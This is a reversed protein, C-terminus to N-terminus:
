RYKKDKVEDLWKQFGTDGMTNCLADCLKGSLEEWGVSDDGIHHKRYALKVAELLDPHTSVPISYQSSGQFEFNSLIERCAKGSVIVKDSKQNHPSDLQETILLLAEQIDMEPELLHVQKGAICGFPQM